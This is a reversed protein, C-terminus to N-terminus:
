SVAFGISIMYLTKNLQHLLGSKNDIVCTRSPPNTVAEASQILLPWRPRVLSVKAPRAGCHRWRGKPRTRAYGLTPRWFPGTAEPRCRRWERSRGWWGISATKDSPPSGAADVSDAPWPGGDRRRRLPSSSISRDSRGKRFDTEVDNLTESLPRWVM